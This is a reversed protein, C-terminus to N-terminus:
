KRRRVKTKVRSLALTSGSLALLIGVLLEGALIASFIKFLETSSRPLVPIAGFFSYINPSSYLVILFTVLWGAVVGIFVYFIAELVLPIVVFGSSAGILNLIEIENRRSTMRMSIIILLVLFSTTMLLFAFVVGGMRLYQSVSRLRELQEALKEGGGIAVTSDVQEVVEEALLDGRVAETFALNALSFEFSPPLIAPNVLEGLLPNEATIEKYIEYAQQKSVYNLSEIRHDNVLKSNLETIQEDTVDAKLFAIIQPKKEYYSITENFSYVMISITTAVFFTISLVMVAALAQFPSRRMHQLATSLHLGFM